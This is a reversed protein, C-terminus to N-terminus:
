LSNQMLRRSLSLDKMYKWLIIKCWFVNSNWIQINRFITWKRKHSTSLQENWGHVFCSCLSTVRNCYMILFRIRSLASSFPQVLCTQSCIRSRFLLFEIWQLHSICLFPLCSIHNSLNSNEALFNLEGPWCSSPQRKGNKEEDMCISKRRFM